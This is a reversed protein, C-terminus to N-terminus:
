KRLGLPYKYLYSFRYQRGRPTNVQAIIGNNIMIQELIEASCEKMADKHRYLRIVNELLEQFVKNPLSIRKFKSLESSANQPINKLYDFVYEIPQAGRENRVLDEYYDQVAETRADKDTYYEPALVPDLTEKDKFKGNKWNSLAIKMLSIFPRVSITNDANKLNRYFWDYATMHFSHGNVSVDKGFMTEILHKLYADDLWPRKEGKKYRKRCNKILALWEQNHFYMAEWLPAYGSKSFISQLLFSYMEASTWEIDIAKNEVDKINTVGVLTRFLDKRLFLKGFISKYRQNRWIKILSPIWENWLSPEVMEDLQDYLITLSSNLYGSLHDDLRNFENEVQIFTATDSIISELWDKSSTDDNFDSKVLWTSYQFESALRPLNKVIIQWTYVLWFRYKHEEDLHRGLKAVSFISHKKNVAEIFLYNGDKGSYEQIVKVLRPETLARYLYSKGTGKSGLIVYKDFNLLDKMCDRLFFKQREFDQYIDSIDDAYLNIENIVTHFRNLIEKNTILRRKDKESDTLNNIEAIGIPAWSEKDDTTLDNLSDEINEDTDKILIDESDTYEQPTPYLITYLTNFFVTLDKNENDKVLYYFDNLVSDPRGVRELTRDYGIPFVPVDMDDDPDLNGLISALSDKFINFLKEKDSRVDPLISNAILPQVSNNKKITESLFYALGPLSQVDNRFFGVALRAMRAIGIGFIDNIGTRSDVLIVDPHGFEEIDEILSTFMDLSSEGGSLDLRALAHIYHSLNSGLHDDEIISHDLNGAPYVRIEGNGTLANDVEYSYRGLDSRDALGCNKDLLYEVIGDHNNPTDANKLYFNTFGPAEIDLDIVAIKLNKHITLWLAFAALTTSRGMGGKYSYFVACTKKMSFDMPNNLFSDFRQNGRSIDIVATNKFLQRLYGYEIDEHDVIEVEAQAYISKIGEYIEQYNKTETWLVQDQNNPMLYVYLNENGRLAIRYKGINKEERLFTDLRNCIDIIRIM